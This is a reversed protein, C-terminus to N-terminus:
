EVLGVTTDFQLVVTTGPETPSGQYDTWTVDEMPHLPGTWTGSVYFRGEAPGEGEPLVWSTCLADACTLPHEGDYASGEPPYYWNAAALPLPLGAPDLATVTLAAPPPAIPLRVDAPHVTPPMLAPVPAATIGDDCWAQEPNLVLHVVQAPAGPPVPVVTWPGDWPFCTAGAADIWTEDGFHETVVQVRAPLLQDPVWVACPPREEDACVMSTLAPRLPVPVRTPDFWSVMDVLLPAGDPDVVRVELTRAGVAGTDDGGSDGDSPAKDALVCGLVFLLVM